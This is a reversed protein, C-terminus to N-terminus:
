KTMPKTNITLYNSSNTVNEWKRIIYIFLSNTTIM